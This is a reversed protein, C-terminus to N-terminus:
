VLLSQSAVIGIHYKGVCVCVCVCVCVNHLIVGLLSIIHAHVTHIFIPVDNISANVITVFLCAEAVPNSTGQQFCVKRLSPNALQVQASM